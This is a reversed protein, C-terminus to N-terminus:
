AQLLAIALLGRISWAITRVWNTRVLRRIVAPDRSKQLRDHAPVSLAATSIWVLFLLAFAIWALATPYLYVLAIASGAEVLMPPGVVFGTRHVHKGAYEAFAEDPVAAFGPYHVVQVFWILGVMFWTAAAHILPILEVLDVAIM